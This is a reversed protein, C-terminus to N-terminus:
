NPVHLLRFGAGGSDAEGMTVQQTTIVGGINRQVLLAVQGDIPPSVAAPFVVTSASANAIQTTFGYYSNPLVSLGVPVSSVNIAKASANATTFMNGGITIHTGGAIECGQHTGLIM